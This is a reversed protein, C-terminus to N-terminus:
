VKRRKVLIVALVAVILVVAGGIGIWLWPIQTFNSDETLQDSSLRYTVCSIREARLLDSELVERAKANTLAAIGEHLAALKAPAMRADEVSDATAKIAAVLEDAQAPTIGGLPLLIETVRGQMYALSKVISADRDLFPAVAPTRYATKVLADYTKDALYATAEFYADGYTGYTNDERAQRELEVAGLSDGSSGLGTVIMTRDGGLKVAETISPGYGDGYAMPHLVDLLWEKLWRPYDQYNRDRAEEPTPAVDASLVVDPAVRDIRERVAIVMETVCDRRYQTWDDWYAASRDYQPTVGYGYQEEFGAFAAETYGFDLDSSTAYYRIYDLEFADVDYTTVLYEYFDVLYSRAEENAPDVMMFGSPNDPTGNQSLSLWEPKKSLVSRNFGSGKDGINMIPMWLHCEIGYEHCADIYAQLVDYSFSPHKEFLSDEPVEMIVGNEFIGEVSVMNIGADVLEKVYAKVEEASKQFPRVWVGRYQVPYSDCLGNRVDTLELMVQDCTDAFAAEDKGKEYAKVASDYTDQAATLLAQANEYDAYVFAAKADEIATRTKDMAMTVSAKLSEADYAFRVTGAAKDYEARMGDIVSSRLWTVMTGHASVVFGKAPITSDNGGRQIVVGDQVVVEYGHVNTGTSTGSIATYVVLENAGRAKDFGSVSKTVDYFVTAEIEMPVDSVTVRMTRRDFYVYDGIQIHQMIWTKMMSGGESSDDDHGSLVFGGAPIDSNGSALEIVKHDAGVIAEAGWWNTGTSDGYDPTYVVLEGVGRASDISTASISVEKAAASVPLMMCLLVAAFLFSFVRKM